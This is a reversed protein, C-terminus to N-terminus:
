TQVGKLADFLPLYLTQACELFGDAQLPDGWAAACRWAAEQSEATARGHRDGLWTKQADKMAELPSRGRHLARAAAEAAKPPWLKLQQLLALNREWPGRANVVPQLVHVIPKGDDFGTTIWRRARGTASMLLWVMWHPLLRSAKWTGMHWDVWDGAPNVYAFGRVNTVPDHLDLARKGSQPWDGVLELVRARLARMEADAAEAADGAGPGVPLLQDAQLRAVLSRLETGQGAVWQSFLGQRLAYRALAEVQLAEREHIPEPVRQWAGQQRLMFEAPNRFYACVAELRLGDEGATPMSTPVSAPLPPLPLWHAAYSAHEDQGSFYLEADPAAPHEVLLHSACRARDGAFAQTCVCDLLQNLVTCASPAQAEKPDTSYSLHLQQRVNQILELFLWRDEQVVQRDGVRPQWRTGDLTDAHGSRPFASPHLGLIAVFRFPVHRLPVLGAVCVQGSLWPLTDRSRALRDGLAARVAVFPVPVRCGASQAHAVLQALADHVARRSRWQVDDRENVQFLHDFAQRLADCWAPWDRPQTWDRVCDEMATVLEAFAGLAVLGQTELRVVPACGGPAAATEGLAYGMVLRQVAFRFSGLGDCGAGHRDRFAADTGWRFGAEQLSERLMPVVEEDICWRERVAPEDLWSLLEAGGMRSEPLDLLRLFAQVLPLQAPSDADSVHVPVSCDPAAAAFAARIFPAYTAIDTCLIAADSPRLTPDRDFARLLADHAVEAERQPDSCAHVRLSIDRPSPQYHGLVQEDMELFSQQLCALLTDSHNTEFCEREDAVASGAYLLNQFDRGVAGWAQLLRHPFADSAPAVEDAQPLRPASRPRRRRADGVADAWWGTCPSPLYLRVERYRAIEEFWRWLAPPLSSVAFLRTTEPLKDAVAEPGHLWASFREMWRGRHPQGAGRTLTQWLAAQWRLAPMPAAPAGQREWALLWDPRFVQYRAYVRALRQTLAHRGADDVQQWYQHLPRLEADASRRAMHAWIRWVMADEDFGSQDPLPGLCADVVSWIYSAPLPFQINAAVGWRSALAFSLWQAIGPHPVVVPLSALVQAPARQSEDDVLQQALRELRNSTILTLM